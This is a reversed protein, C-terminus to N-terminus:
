EVVYGMGFEDLNTKGAVLTGAAEVKQVVTAAFPSGFGLLMGSACTTEEKTTCINDKVALLRASHREGTRVKAKLVAAVAERQEINGSISDRCSVWANLRSALESQRALKCAGATKSMHRTLQTAIGSPVSSCVDRPLVHRNNM